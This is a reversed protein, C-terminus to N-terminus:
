RNVEFTATLTENEEQQTETTTVLNGESSNTAQPAQNSSDAPNTAALPERTGEVLEAAEAQGQGAQVPSVAVTSTNQNGESSAIAELEEQREQIASLTGEAPKIVEGDGKRPEASNAATSLSKKKTESSKKTAELTEQREQIASVALYQTAASPKQTYASLNTRKLFIRLIVALSLTLFLTIRKSM